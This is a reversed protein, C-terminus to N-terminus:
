NNVYATTASRKSICVPFQPAARHRLPERQRRVALLTRIRTSVNRHSTQMNEGHGHPNVGPVGTEEWLGFVHLSPLNISSEGAVGLQIFRCFILSHIFIVQDYIDILYRLKLKLLGSSFNYFLSQVTEMDRVNTSM